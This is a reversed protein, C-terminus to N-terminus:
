SPDGNPFRTNAWDPILPTCSLGAARDTCTAPEYDAFVTGNFTARFTRLEYAPAENAIRRWEPLPEVATWGHSLGVGPNLVVYHGGEHRLVIDGDSDPEALVVHHEHGSPSRLIQGLAFTM